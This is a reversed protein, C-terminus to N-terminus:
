MFSSKVPERLNTICKPNACAVVGEVVEPLFIEKKKAVKSDRIINVTAHPALLALKGLEEGTLERDAVKVVDKSSRKKSKVNMAISVVSSQNNKIGLLKVIDLARGHPIHDIVTGKEIKSVLLDKM